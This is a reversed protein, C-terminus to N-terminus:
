FAQGGSGDFGGHAKMYVYKEIDKRIGIGDERLPSNWSALM